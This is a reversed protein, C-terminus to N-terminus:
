NIGGFLNPKKIYIPLVDIIQTEIFLSLYKFPDSELKNTDWKTFNQEKLLQIKSTPKGDLFSQKYCLGSKADISVTGTFSPGAIFQLSNITFIKANTILAIPKIFSLAVRSGTFSGPGITIYFENIDNIKLNADELGKQFAIPLKETQKVVNHEVLSFLIKNESLFFIILKNNSTDVISRVM